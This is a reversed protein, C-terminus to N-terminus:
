RQSATTFLSSKCSVWANGDYRLEWVKHDMGRCGLMFTEADRDNKNTVSAATMASGLPMSWDLVVNFTWQKNGADLMAAVIHMLDNQYFVWVNGNNGQFAAIDTWLYPQKDAPLPKMQEYLDGEAWSGGVLRM